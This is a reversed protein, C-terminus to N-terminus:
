NAKRRTVALFVAKAVEETFVEEKANKMDRSDLWDLRVGSGSRTAGTYTKDPDSLLFGLPTLSIQARSVFEVTETNSQSNDKDAVDVRVECVDKMGWIYPPILATVSAVGSIFSGWMGVSEESEAIIIEVDVPVGVPSSTFLDPYKQTLIKGLDAKSALPGGVRAVSFISSNMGSIGSAMVLAHDTTAGFGNNKFSVTSLRYKVPASLTVKASNKVQGKFKYSYCGTMTALFICCVLSMVACYSLKSM